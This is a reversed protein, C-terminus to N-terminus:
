SGRLGPARAAVASRSLAAALARHLVAGAVRHGLPSPHVPDYTISRNRLYLPQGAAARFAPLLDVVPVDHTAGWERVRRQPEGALVEPGLRTGLERRYLALLDPTLQVEMPFVAVVLPWGRSRTISAIRDLWELSARWARHQRDSPPELPLFDSEHNIDLVRVRYLLSKVSMYGLLYAQSHLLLAGNIRRV